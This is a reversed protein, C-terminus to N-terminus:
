KRLRARAKAVGGPMRGEADQAEADQAEADEADHEDAHSDVSQRAHALAGLEAALGKAAAAATAKTGHLVAESVPFPPKLTGVVFPKDESYSCIVQAMKESALRNIRPLLPALDVCGM